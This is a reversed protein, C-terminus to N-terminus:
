RFIIQDNPPIIRNEANHICNVIRTTKKLDFLCFKHLAATQNYFYKLKGQSTTEHKKSSIKKTKMQNKSDAM